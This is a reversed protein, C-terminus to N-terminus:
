PRRRLALAGFGATWLLILAGEGAGPLTRPVPTALVSDRWAGVVAPVPAGAAAALAPAVRDGSAIARGIANPGGARVAAHLLGQHLVAPVPHPLNFNRAAAECDSQIGDAVCRARLAREASDVPSWEAVLSAIDTASYWAHLPDDVSAGDVEMARMCTAGDAALCQRAVSSRSTALDVHADQWDRSTTPALRVWPEGLWAALPRPLRAGVTSGFLTLIDDRVGDVDLDRGTGLDRTRGAPKPIYLRYRLRGLPGSYWEPYAAVELPEAAVAAEVLTDHYARIVDWATNVARALTARDRAPMEDGVVRVAIPGARVTDRTSTRRRDEMMSDLATRTAAYHKAARVFRVRAAAAADQAPQASAPAPMRLTLAVVAGM